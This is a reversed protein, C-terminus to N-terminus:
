SALLRRFINKSRPSPKVAADAAGLGDAQLKALSPARKGGPLDISGEWAARLAALAAPLPVATLEASSDGTVLGWGRLTALAAECAFDIRLGFQTALFKECRADLDAAARRSLPVPTSAAPCPQSAVAEIRLMSFGEHM